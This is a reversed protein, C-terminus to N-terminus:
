QSERLWMTVSQIGNENWAHINFRLVDYYAYESILVFLEGVEITADPDNKKSIRATVKTTPLLDDILHYITNLKVDM